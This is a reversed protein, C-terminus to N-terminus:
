NAPHLRERRDALTREIAALQERLHDALDYLKTEFSDERWNCTECPEKIM